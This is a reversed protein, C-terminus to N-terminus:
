GSIKWGVPCLSSREPDKTLDWLATEIGGSAGSLDGSRSGESVLTEAMKQYLYDVQLPDEEVVLDRLRDIHRTIASGVYAEGLGYLDSDTTIKVLHAPYYALQVSATQVDVVKVRGVESAAGPVAKLVPSAGLSFTGAATGALLMERRTWM